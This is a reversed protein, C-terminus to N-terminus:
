AQILDADVELLVLTHIPPLLLTLIANVFYSKELKVLLLIKPFVKKAAKLLEKGCWIIEVM